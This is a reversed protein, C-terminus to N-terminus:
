PDTVPPSFRKFVALRCVSDGGCSSRMQCKSSVADIETSPQVSTRPVDHALLPWSNALQIGPQSPLM